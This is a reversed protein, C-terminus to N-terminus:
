SAAGLADPQEDTTESNGAAALAARYETPSQGTIQKFVRNFSTHRTFGRQRRGAGAGRARRHDAPRAGRFSAGGAASRDRADLFLIKTARVTFPQHALAGAVDIPDLAQQKTLANAPDVDLPM